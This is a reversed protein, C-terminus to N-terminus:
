VGPASGRAAGQVPAAAPCARQRTLPSRPSLLASAPRARGLLRAAGARAAGCLAGAAAGVAVGPLEPGPGRPLSPSLSLGAPGTRTFRGVAAAQAQASAQCTSALLRERGRGEAAPRSLAARPHRPASTASAPLYCRRLLWLAPRVSEPCQEVRVDALGGGAAPRYTYCRAQAQVPGINGPLSTEVAAADSDSGSGAGALASWGGGEGPDEACEQLMGMHCKCDASWAPVRPLLGTGLFWPALAYWSTLAQRNLELLWAPLWKPCM